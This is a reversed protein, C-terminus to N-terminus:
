PKKLPRNLPTASANATSWALDARCLVTVDDGGLVIPRLPPLGQPMMARRGPIPPRRDLWLPKVAETATALADSFQRFARYEDTSKNQLVDKLKKLLLGLGNGDILILAIDREAEGADTEPPTSSTKKWTSRYAIRGEAAGTPTFRGQLAANARM